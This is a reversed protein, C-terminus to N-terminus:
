GKKEDDQMIKLATGSATIQLLDVFERPSTLMREKLWRMIALRFADAFFGAIFNQYRDEVFIDKFYDTILPSMQEAFYESFCNQGEYEFIRIYYDKNAYFYECLAQMFEWGNVFLRKSAEEIFEHNFIWNALEYKDKFHYYFSNRNLECRTCIDIVRIKTFSEEKLLSKLAEALAKKTILSDSM